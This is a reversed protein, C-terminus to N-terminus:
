RFPTKPICGQAETGKKTGIHHNRCIGTAGRKLLKMELQIQMYWPNTEKCWTQKKMKTQHSMICTHSLTYVAKKYSLHENM